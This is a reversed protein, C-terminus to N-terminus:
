SWNLIRLIELFTNVKPESSSVPTPSESACVSNSGVHAGCPNPSLPAILHTLLHKIGTAARVDPLVDVSPKHHKDACQSQKCRIWIHASASNPLSRTMRRGDKSRSTRGFFAPRELDKRWSPSTTARRTKPLATRREMDPGQSTM